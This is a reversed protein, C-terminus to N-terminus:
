GCPITSLRQMVPTAIVLVSFDYEQHTLGLPSMIHVLLISM